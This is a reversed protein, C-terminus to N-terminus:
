AAPEGPLVLDGQQAPAVLAEVLANVVVQGGVHHRDPGIHEGTPLQRRHHDAVGHEALQRAGEAVRVAGEFLGEARRELAGGLIRVVGAWGVPAPVLHRLYQEGAVMAPHMLPSELLTALAGPPLAASAAVM